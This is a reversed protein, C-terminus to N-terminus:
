LWEVWQVGEVQRLQTLISDRLASRPLNLTIQARKQDAEDTAFEIGTVRAGTSNITTLVQSLQAEHTLLCELTGRQQRKHLWKWEIQRFLWLTLFVLVSTAAAGAYWGAGVALGIGAVTWLSAATTLGRVVDGHRIITGAGLFGIGSVVQAALRAPDFNRGAAVSYSIMMVLCSGMGVLVHTRFGAPREKSEREMGILGSLVLALSLKTLTEVTDPFSFNM